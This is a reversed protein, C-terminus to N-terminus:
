KKIKMRFAKVYENVNKEKITVSLIELGLLFIHFNFKEDPEFLLALSLILKLGALVSKLFCNEKKSRKILINEIEENVEQLGLLGWTIGMLPITSEQGLIFCIGMIFLILASAKNNRTALYRKEKIEFITDTIGTLVMISGLITPLCKAIIEPIFICLIGVIPLLLWYNKEIRKM